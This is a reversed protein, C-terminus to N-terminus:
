AQSLTSSSSSSSSSSSPPPSSPLIDPHERILFYVCDLHIYKDISAMILAEVVNLSPINDSSSTYCEALSIKIVKMVKEGGGDKEYNKCARQFPTRYYEGCLNSKHMRFLLNIGIKKPYYRIGYEFEQQFELIPSICAVYHLILEGDKDNSDPRILISPDWEVLFKSRKEEFGVFDAYCDDCLMYVLRYEQIDEKKMLGMRRLQILVQLYKDDVAEHNNTKDFINISFSGRNKPRFSRILNHFINYYDNIEDECLL